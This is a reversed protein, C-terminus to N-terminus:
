QQPFITIGLKVDLQSLDLESQKIKLEDFSLNVNLFDLKRCFNVIDKKTGSFYLYAEREITQDRKTITLPEINIGTSAALSNISGALHRDDKYEYNEITTNAPLLRTLSTVQYEKKDETQEIYFLEPDFSQKHNYIYYKLNEGSTIDRVICIVSLNRNKINFDYIESNDPILELVGSILKLQISRNLIKTAILTSVTKGNNLPVSNNKTPPVPKNKQFRQVLETSKIITQGIWDTYHYVYIISASFILIVLVTIVPKLVSRKKKPKKIKSSSKEKVEQELKTIQQATEETLPEPTIKDGEVPEIAPLDM